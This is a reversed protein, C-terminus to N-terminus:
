MTETKVQRSLGIVLGTVIAVSGWFQGRHLPEGLWLGAVAIGVVPQIFITLATVNVETERIVVFWVSYGVLTCILSLFGMIVWASVPMTRAALITGHGDLLLNVVAGSVIAVGLVKMFGARAILPKGMVSYTTECVFSAIFLLDATLGPLKFDARWVQALLVVGLLGFSFGVWRRRGIHERLFIAAAISTILPELAILVSCDSAQGQRVGAVQLRPALVFVIIGMASAKVLDFGRPIKGPLWPWLIVLVIAALCFRLTVVEGSDLYPTLVKFTSYSAAWFLNLVALLILHAPKM